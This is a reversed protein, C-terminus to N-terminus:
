APIDADADVATHAPSLRRARRNIPSESAGCTRAARLNLPPTRRARRRRSPGDGDQGGAAADVSRGVREDRHRPAGRRPDLDDPGADDHDVRAPQSAQEPLLRLDRRQAPLLGASRPTAAATAIAEVRVAASSSARSPASRIAAAAGSADAAMPRHRGYTGAPASAAASAGSGIASTARSAASSGGATRASARGPTAGPAPPPAAPASTGSARHRRQPSAVSPASAASGAASEELAEARGAQGPMRHRAPPIRPRQHRGGLRLRELRRAGEFPRDLRDLRQREREAPHDIRQARPQIVVAEARDRQLRRQAQDGALEVHPPEAQRHRHAVRPHQARQNDEIEFRMRRRGADVRQRHRELRHGAADDLRRQQRPGM